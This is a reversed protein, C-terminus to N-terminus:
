FDELKIHVFLTGRIFDGNKGRLKVHRFGPQIANLPVCAQGLFESRSYRDEDRVKFALLCFEPCHIPMRIPFNWLPNLGNNHVAPTRRESCDRPVGHTSIKVYPDAISWKDSRPLHQASIIRLTLQKRRTVLPKEPNFVKDRHRLFAPKLVYGCGGNDSFLGSQLLM